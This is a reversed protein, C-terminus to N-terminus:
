INVALSSDCRFLRGREEASAAICLLLVLEIWIMEDRLSPQSFKSCVNLKEHRCFTHALSYNALVGECRSASGNEKVPVTGNKEEVSRYRDKAKAFMRCRGALSLTSGAEVTDCVADM